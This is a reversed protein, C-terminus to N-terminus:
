PVQTSHVYTESRLVWFVNGNIYMHQANTSVKMVHKYAQQELAPLDANPRESATALTELEQFIPYNVPLKLVREFTGFPIAFSPPVGLCAPLKDTLEKINGSKAGVVGEGFDNGM